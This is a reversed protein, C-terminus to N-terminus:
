SRAAGEVARRGGHSNNIWKRYNRINIVFSVAVVALLGYLQSQLAVAVWLVNCCMLLVFGLARKNGVTWNGSLEFIAALWDM